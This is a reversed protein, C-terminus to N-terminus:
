FLNIKLKLCIQILLDTSIILDNVSVNNPNGHQMENRIKTPLTEYQTVFGNNPNKYSTQIFHISNNFAPQKKIYEDTRKVSGFGETIQIYDFLQIFFDNSYIHFAKFGIEAYSRYPLLFPTDYREFEIIGKTDKLGVILANNDFFAKSIIRESHTAIFLQGISNNGDFLLDSYFKYIKECWMPHMSLEPEDILVIGNKILSLDRLILVARFVIQKEGSSLDDLYIKKGDKEFYIEKHNNITELGKYQISGFFNNIANKFISIKSYNKEFEYYDVRSNKNLNTFREADQGELDILLKKIETFDLNNNGSNRTRGAVNVDSSGINKIKETKFDVQTTSFVCGNKRIDDKNDRMADYNNNYNRNNAVTTGNKTLNHFGFQKSKENETASILEDNDNLFDLQHFPFENGNIFKNLDKLITTKGCGNEGLIIIKDFASNAGKKLDLKLDGLKENGKYAIFSIRM